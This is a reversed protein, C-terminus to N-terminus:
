VPMNDFRAEVAESLLIEALDRVSAPVDEGAEQMTHIATQLDSYFLHRKDGAANEVQELIDNLQKANPTM